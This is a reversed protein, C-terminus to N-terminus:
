RNPLASLKPWWASGRPRRSPRPLRWSCSTRRAAPRMRRETCGPACRGCGLAPLFVFILDLNHKKVSLFCEQDKDGFQQFYKKTFNVHVSFNSSGRFSINEAESRIADTSASDGLYRQVLCDVLNAALDRGHGTVM